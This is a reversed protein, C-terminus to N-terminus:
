GTPTPYSSRYAEGMLKRTYYKYNTGFTDFSDSDCRM